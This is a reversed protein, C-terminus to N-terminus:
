KMWISTWNTIWRIDRIKRKRRDNMDAEMAKFGPDHEPLIPEKSDSSTSDSEFYEWKKYNTSTKKYFMAQTKIWLDFKAKREKKTKRREKLEELKSKLYDMREEKTITEHKWHTCKGLEIDYETFWNAWFSKYESKHGKGKRGNIFKEEEKIKKQEEQYKKLMEQDKLKQDVEDISISGNLLGKVQEEVEKVKQLFEEADDLKITSM